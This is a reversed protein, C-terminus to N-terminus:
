FWGKFPSFILLLFIALIHIALLLWLAVRISYKNKEYRIYYIDLVSFAIIGYIIVLICFPNRYPYRDFKDLRITWLIFGCCYQLLCYIVFHPISLIVTKRKEERDSRILSISGAVILSLIVITFISFDLIKRMNGRKWNPM